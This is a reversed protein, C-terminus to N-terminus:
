WCSCKPQGPDRRCAATRSRPGAGCWAMRAASKGTHEAEAAAPSSTGMAPLAASDPRETVSLIVDIRSVKVSPLSCESVSIALIAPRGIEVAWRSAVSSVEQRDLAGGSAEVSCSQRQARDAPTVRAWGTNGCARRVNELVEGGRRAAPGAEPEHGVQLDGVDLLMGPPLRGRREGERRGKGTM